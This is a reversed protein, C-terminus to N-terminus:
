FQELTYSDGLRADAWTKFYSLQGLPAAPNIINLAYRVFEAATVNDYITVAGASNPIRPGTAPANVHHFDVAYNNNALAASTSNSPLFGPQFHLYINKIEGTGGTLRYHAEYSEWQQQIQFVRVAQQNGTWVGHTFQCSLLIRVVLVAQYQIPSPASDQNAHFYKISSEDKGVDYLALNLRKLPSHAVEFQGAQAMPDAMNAPRQSPGVATLSRTYTIDWTDRKLRAVFTKNPLLNKLPVVKSSEMIRHMPYWLHHLRPAGNHFMMSTVNEPMSLQILFQDFDPSAYTGNQDPRYLTKIYEDPQGTAHGLEHAM